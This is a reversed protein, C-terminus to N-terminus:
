QWFGSSPCSRGRLDQLPFYKKPSRLHQVWTLHPLQQRPSPRVALVSLPDLDQRHQIPHVLPELFSVRDSRPPTPPVPLEPISVQDQRHPTPRVVQSLSDARRQKPWPHFPNPRAALRLFQMRRHHNAMPNKMVLAPKVAKPVQQALFSNPKM